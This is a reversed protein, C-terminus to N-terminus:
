KIVEGEIAHDFDIPGTLERLQDMASPLQQQSAAIRELVPGLVQRLTAPGRELRQQRGPDEEFRSPLARAPAPQHRRREAQIQEVGARIHGPMIRETQTAYYRRVAELADNVDLDGLVAHWAQLVALNPNGLRYEFVSVAALVRRMDDLTM